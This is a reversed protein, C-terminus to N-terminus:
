WIAASGDTSPGGPQIAPADAVPPPCDPLGHRALAPPMPGGTAWDLLEVTHVMPLNAHRRLQNLCGINGMAAIDAATSTVHAAKRAGLQNALEPQLINYVGASGCCIHGEPVDVVRYGARRLLDRPERTIRQGHRLSCADHYAIRFSRAKPVPPLGLEAIVESVDRAISSVWEADAAHAADGAFLHGYDKLVTGCGSANVVVADLGGEDRERILARLNAAALRRASEDKGMHLTLAGCCGLGQPVVVECGARRLLRITAENISRELAQQACGPLLAVRRRRTGEAPHVGPRTLAGDIESPRPAMTIMSRMIGPLLSAVPRAFSALRMAWRMRRPFPITAAILARGLREMLPRRYFREIRARAVDILHVYDVRVACTTMCGLCSLCRDLYHVAKPSPPADSHLMERILDIRGRPGDNEDRTLVYTPCTATCFGYHVCSKLIPDAVQIEPDALQRPTFHTQV